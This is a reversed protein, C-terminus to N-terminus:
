KKKAKQLISESQPVGDETQCTIVVKRSQSNEINYHMVGLHYHKCQRLSYCDFCSLSNFYVNMKDNRNWYYQHVQMTGKFNKLKLPLIKDVSKIEELSVTSIYVSKEKEKLVSLVQDLNTIDQNYKVADDLTRKISAGIGDAPGKGHGTESFNYTIKQIQCFETLLYQTVFYFMSKNRYQTAPSDSMIHLIKLGPYIKFYYSLIKKLHAIVACSDHRLSSSLTSFGQHFDKTYFVGTHLTLQTRSAGFHVAQVETSYKCCYNESFDILLFCEENNLKKKMDKTRGHISTHNM